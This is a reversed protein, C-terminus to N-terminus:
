KTMENFMKIKDRLAAQFMSYLPWKSQVNMIQGITNTYIEASQPSNFTAIDINPTLYFTENRGGPCGLTYVYILKDTIDKRAVALYMRDSLNMHIKARIKVPAFDKNIM